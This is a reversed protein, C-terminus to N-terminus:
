AGAVKMRLPITKLRSGAVSISVTYFGPGPFQVPVAIVLPANRKWGPPLEEGERQVGVTFTVTALPEGNAQEVAVEGAHTIGTEDAEFAVRFVVSLVVGAPYAEQPLTGTDWGGGLMSILQDSSVQAANALLAFEVEAM